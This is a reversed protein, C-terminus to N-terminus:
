IVKKGRGAPRGAPVIAVSRDLHAGIRRAFEERGLVGGKAISERIRRIDDDALREDFLARYARGRTLAEPGLRLYEERPSLIGGPAGGANQSYSSWPYEGPHGVMGARVPNLEIYRMCSFLYAESDVLSSKFRGEFLTGTRKQSRNMYRTYRRGTAQIFRSLSGAESGTALLHVHNSMMVFGHVACGSKEIADALYKLFLCRDGDSHFLECRNNGRVRM